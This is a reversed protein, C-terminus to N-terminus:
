EAELQYVNGNLTVVYLEGDTDEGFSALDGTATSELDNTLEGEDAVMGDKWRLWFIRKSCYDGYLYTGVLDPIKKGRYVYGGTISCHGEAHALEAVAGTMGDMSCNSFNCNSAQNENFCHNGEAVDWGFNQHGVGAPTVDIEEWCNQGVDGIYM